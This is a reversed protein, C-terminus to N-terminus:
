VKRLSEDPTESSSGGGAWNNDDRMTGVLSTVDGWTVDAVEDSISFGTSRGKGLFLLVRTL